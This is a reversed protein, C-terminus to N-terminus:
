SCKRYNFVGNIHHLFVFSNGNINIFKGLGQLELEFNVDLIAVSQNVFNQIKALALEESIHEKEAIMGVLLGDNNSLMKNFAVEKYPPMFRHTAYDITASHRKSIFAGFEPVVVCEHDNLLEILYNTIM